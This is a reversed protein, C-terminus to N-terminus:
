FPSASFLVATVLEQLVHYKYSINLSLPAEETGYSPLQIKLASAHKQPVMERELGLLSEERSERELPSGTEREPSRASPTLLFGNKKEKM